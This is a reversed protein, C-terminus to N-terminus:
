KSGTLNLKDKSILTRVKVLHHKFHILSHLRYIFNSFPHNRLNTLHKTMNKNEHTYKEILKHNKLWIGVTVYFM